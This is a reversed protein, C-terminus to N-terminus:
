VLRLARDTKSSRLPAHTRGGLLGFLVNELEVSPIYLEEAITDRTIGDKWLERFVKEWVVSQERCMGEPESKGYLKNIQICFNRYQWDSLLNQKHLRYALASVSVGWRKKARVIQELKSVRPIYALLDTEPILFHSAFRNAEQEAERGTTVGHLHMVLHGLEHAADFRSHEATKFTNLFIYPTGSRWCSFADVNRTEESLSFVRVGKSELLKIMNNIPREGLGWHQRLTRAAAEPTIESSFAILDPSPLNFREMVWDAVLYAMSGATLAADREKATMASLSRFSASEKTPAEVEPGLFFDAPFGLESAIMEITSHEPSNTEGKELRTITVHSLGVREALERASLKRRKRATVLRNPCFKSM